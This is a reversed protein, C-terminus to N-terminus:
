HSFSSYLPLFLLSSFSPSFLLFSSPSLLSTSSLPLFCISCLTSNKPNTKPHTIYNSDGVDDGDSGGEINHNIYPMMPLALQQSMSIFSYLSPPLVTASSSPPSCPLHLLSEYSLQLLATQWPLPLTTRWYEVSDLNSIFIAL